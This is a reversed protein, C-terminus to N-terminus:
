PDSERTSFDYLVIEKKIIYWLLLLSIILVPLFAVLNFWPSIIFEDFSVKLVQMVLPLLLSELIGYILVGLIVSILCYRIDIRCLIWTCLSLVAILILTNTAYSIPLRRMFFCMLAVLASLIIIQNTKPRLNLLRFGFEIILITQPFSILVAIYWPIAHM